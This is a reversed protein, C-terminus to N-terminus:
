HRGMIKGLIAYYSVEGIARSDRSNERNDGLVFFKGESVVLPYEVIESTPVTKGQIYPEELKEGNLYVSGDKIDVEDGGVAIIRKVYYEGSPMDIAVIDGRNFHRDFRYFFLPENDSLTPMMSQGDVRSIGMLIFFVIMVSIIVIAAGVILTIRELGKKGYKKKNMVAEHLVYGQNRFIDLLINM